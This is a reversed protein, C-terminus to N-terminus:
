CRLVINRVIGGGSSPTLALPSLFRRRPRIHFLSLINRHDQLTQPLRFFWRREPSHGPSGPGQAVHHACEALETGARLSCWCASVLSRTTFRVRETNLPTECTADYVVDRTFSPLMYLRPLANAMSAYFGNRSPFKYYQLDSFVLLRWVTPMCEVGTKCRKRFCFRMSQSGPGEREEVGRADFAPCVTPGYPSAEMGSELAPLSLSGVNGVRVRTGPNLMPGGSLKGGFPRVRGALVLFLADRAPSFPLLCPRCPSRSPVIPPVPSVPIALPPTVPWPGFPRCCALASPLSPAVAGRGQRCHRFSTHTEVPFFATVSQTSGSAFKRCAQASDSSFGDSKCFSSISFSVVGLALGKRM